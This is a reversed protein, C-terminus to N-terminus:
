VGCESTGAAQHNRPFAAEIDVRSGAGVSEAAAEDDVGRLLNKEIGAARGSRPGEGKGPARDAGICGVDRQAVCNNNVTIELEPSVAVIIRHGQVAGDGELELVRGQAQALARNRLEKLEDNDRATWDLFRPFIAESWVSM